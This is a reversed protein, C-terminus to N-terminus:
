RQNAKLYAVVFETACKEVAANLYDLKDTEILGTLESSQWTVAGAIVSPDRDLRVNQRLQAHISFAYLLARENKRTNISLWFCPAGPNRLMQSDDVVPVGGQTLTKKIRALIKKKNLGDLAADFEIKEIDVAVGNLGSLTPLGSNHQFGAAFALITAFCVMMLFVVAFAAIRGFM